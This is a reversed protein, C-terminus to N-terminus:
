KASHWLWSAFYWLQLRWPGYSKVWPSWHLCHIYTKHINNIYENNMSQNLSKRFYYLIYPHIYTYIIPKNWIFVQEVSCNQVVDWWAPLLGSVICVNVDLMCTYLPIKLTVTNTKQCLPLLLETWCWNCIIHSERLVAYYSQKTSDDRSLVKLMPACPFKAVWSLLPIHWKIGRCCRGSHLSSSSIQVSHCNLDLGYM